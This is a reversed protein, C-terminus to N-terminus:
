YQWTFRNGSYLLGYKQMIEPPVGPYYYGGMYAELIGKGTQTWEVHADMYADPTLSAPFRRFAHVLTGGDM